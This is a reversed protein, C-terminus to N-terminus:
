ISAAGQRGEDSPNQKPARRITVNNFLFGGMVGTHHAPPRIRRMLERQIRFLKMYRSITTATTAIKKVSKESGRPPERSIGILWTTWIAAPPCILDISIRPSLSSMVVVAPSDNVERLSDPALITSTSSLEPMSTSVLRISMVTWPELPRLLRKRTSRLKRGRMMKPAMSRKMIRCACPFVLWVKLKPRLLALNNTPFLGETLKRSTAPTWSALSSRWSTTSNRLVGSLNRTSPARMGLPTRRIPGGPVPLVRSARATAPSAPTGKKEMLPLSNTSINTPTPADLTRSRKSWALLFAGHM